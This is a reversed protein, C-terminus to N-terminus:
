VGPHPRSATHFPLTKGLFVVCQSQAPNLGSGSSASDLASVMLSSHRWVGQRRRREM